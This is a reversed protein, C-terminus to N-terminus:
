LEINCNGLNTSVLSGACRKAVLQYAVQLVCQSEAYEM